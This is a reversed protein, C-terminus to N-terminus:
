KYKNKRYGIIIAGLSFVGLVVGIIGLEPLKDKIESSANTLEYGKVEIYDSEGTSESADNITSTETDEGVGDSENKEPTDAPVIKLETGTRSSSSKKGSSSSSSSDESDVTDGSGGNTNSTGFPITRSVGNIVLNFEGEPMNNTTYELEFTGDSDATTSVQADFSFDVQEGLSSGSLKIDYIGPPIKSTGFTAVNGDKQIFKDPVKLTIGRKASIDLNDVGKATLKFHGDPVTVKGIHYEYMGDSVTQVKNFSVKASIEENPSAKGTITVTDGPSPNEPSISYTVEALAASSMGIIVLIITCLLVMFTKHIM